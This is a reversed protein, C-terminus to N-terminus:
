AAGRLRGRLNQDLASRRGDQSLRSGLLAAAPGTAAILALSGATPVPLGLFRRLPPLAFSLATVGGSGAFAGIVPLSLQGRSVGAQVTQALQTCVISGFAIASAQGGVLPAAVVAALAPVATAIARTAIARVLQRDFSDRAAPTLWELERERPPQAAVSVAPLVDTVLNITLIQRASLVTGRGVAAIGAMLAVEGLNGGLLLGLAGHLNQWLSRGEILAETLTEFRDDALVLDAAQRAVETGGVGMAVGVDALRLAPADNVGDGTMAVTHGAEQLCEVIRVKDIPTIRAVVSVETLREGLEGNQLQEIEDGTMVAEPEIALGLDGAIKRATAPHDGTLMVVRIGADHCRAVAEAVGPRIPDSIGVFGLATLKRPDDVQTEAPGEAVMLVRLGDASLAEARELLERQGTEDLPTASGDPATIWECRPVVAEAAGKVFVRDRVSTAHLSRAPDFPAESKRPAGLESELGARKAAALVAADTPHALADPSDPPPSALGAAMLVHAARDPLESSIGTTRQLDDIATVELTGRTLTGTKDSCVVDVRGLAEVATLRRVLASRTALRRAVAAESVGALLPLGEPVAAVAVSAGIALQALPAGGWAIGAITVLAGGALVVPMGQKFLQDLREGLPSERTEEVAIAAATAGLRTGEGVAVVVAKGSGVTVDGGELVVRTEPDDAEPSKTVPLSEGTLAAEDVELSDAEILRADAVVRDGAGIVVIDGKVVEDAAVEGVTGDRLVRATAGGMQELARAAEGAQREQWAGV